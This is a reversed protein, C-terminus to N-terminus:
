RSRPPATSTTREDFCTALSRPFCVCEMPEGRPGTFTVVAGRCDPWGKPLHALVPVAMLAAMALLLAVILATQRVM